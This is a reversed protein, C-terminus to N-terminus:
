AIGSCQLLHLKISHYKVSCATIYMHMCFYQNLLLDSVMHVEEESSRSIRYLLYQNRKSPSLGGEGVNM